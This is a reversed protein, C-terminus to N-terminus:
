ACHPKLIKRRLVDQCRSSEPESLSHFAAISLCHYRAELGLHHCLFVRFEVEEMFVNVSFSLGIGKAPSSLASHVATTCCILCLGWLCPYSDSTCPKM